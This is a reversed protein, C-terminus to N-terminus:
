YIFFRIVQWALYLCGGIIGVILLVSVIAAFKTFFSNDEHEMGSDSENKM